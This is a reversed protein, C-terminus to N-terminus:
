PTAVEVRLELGGLFVFLSAFATLFIKSFYGGQQVTLGARRLNLSM